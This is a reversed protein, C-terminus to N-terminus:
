EKKNVSNLKKNDSEKEDNIKNNKSNFKKFSELLNKIIMSEASMKVNEKESKIINM